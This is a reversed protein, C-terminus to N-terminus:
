FRGSSWVWAPVKGCAAQAVWAPGEPFGKAWPSNRGCHATARSRRRCGDAARVWAASPARNPIPASRADASAAGAGAARRRRMLRYISPMVFMSLLPATVMGAVIVAVTVAKPRVRLVAAERIAALPDADGGQGRALRAGWAQKLYMLMTVGFEAAVGALAIFGIAVAVSLKYGLLYLLWFGGILAFPLTALILLAEDFRRSTLYPLMFIIGLAFPVVVKLKATARQLFECQGSWSVSYGPALKVQEAAAKQM